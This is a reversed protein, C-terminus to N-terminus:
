GNFRGSKFAKMLVRILKRVGWWMFAFGAAIGAGAAIVSVVTSISIQSQLETIVSMFDSTSVTTDAFAPICIVVSLALALAFAYFKKFRKM